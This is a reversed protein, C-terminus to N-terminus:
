DIGVLLDYFMDKLDKVVAARDASTDFKMRRVHIETAGAEIYPQKLERTLEIQLNETEGIYVPLWEKKEGRRAFIYVGQIQDFLTEMSYFTFGYHRLSFGVWTHRGKFM